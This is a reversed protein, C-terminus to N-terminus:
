YKLFVIALSPYIRTYKADESCILDPLLALHGQPPIPLRARKLPTHRLPRAPEVGTLPVEIYLAQNVSFHTLSKKYKYSM